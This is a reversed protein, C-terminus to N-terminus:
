SVSSNVKLAAGFAFSMEGPSMKDLPSAPNRQISYAVKTSNRKFSVALINNSDVQLAQSVKQIATANRIWLVAQNDSSQLCMNNAATILDDSGPFEGFIVLGIKQRLFEKTETVAVNPNSLKYVRTENTKHLGLTISM